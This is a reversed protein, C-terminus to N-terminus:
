VKAVEKWVRELENNTWWIWLLATWSVSLAILYIVFLPREIMLQCTRLLSYTNPSSYVQTPRNGQQNHPLVPLWKCLASSSASSKINSTTQQNRHGPSQLRLWSVANSSSLCSPTNSKVPVREIPRATWHLGIFGSLQDPKNGSFDEGVQEQRQNCQSKWFMGRSCGFQRARIWRASQDV